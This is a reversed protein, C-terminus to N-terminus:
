PRECCRAMVKSTESQRGNRLPLKRPKKVTVVADPMTTMDCEKLFFVPPAPDAHGRFLEPFLIAALTILREDLEDVARWDLVAGLGSFVESMDIISGSGPSCGVTRYAFYAKMFDESVCSKAPDAGSQERNLVEVTDLEVPFWNPGVENLFRRVADFSEGQPGALEAANAVSFMLDARGSYLAALFRTRRSPDGEALDGVAWNDLYVALGRVRATVTLPSADFTSSTVEIMHMSGTAWPGDSSELLRLRNSAPSSDKTPVQALPLVFTFDPASGVQVM